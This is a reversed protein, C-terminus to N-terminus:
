VLAASQLWVSRTVIETGPVRPLDVLIVALWLVLFSTLPFENEQLLLKVNFSVLFRCIFVPLNKGM